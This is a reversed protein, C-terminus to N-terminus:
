KWVVTQPSDAPGFDIEVRTLSKAGAPVAFPARTTPPKMALPAGGDFSVRVNRVGTEPNALYPPPKTVVGTEVIQFIRKTQSTGAYWLITLQGGGVRYNPTLTVTAVSTKGKIQTSQAPLVGNAGETVAISLGQVAPAPPKSDGCASLGLSVFLTSALALGGFGSRM